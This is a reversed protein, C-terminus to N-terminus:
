PGEFYLPNTLALMAGDPARLEALAWRAGAPLPPSVLGREGTWTSAPQGDVVWRLVAGEPAGQWRLGLAQVEARAVTDGMLATRGGALSAELHVQPGTSLFVHGRSIGELLAAASLERAYIHSYAAGRAYQQPSHTDTGAVAPLRHGQGLWEYWIHLTNPSNTGLEYWPGNWVEIAQMPGPMQDTYLWACGTCLPDGLGALHAIVALGGAARVEQVADGMTRRRHGTRWDVWRDVGLAVAHGYYTTLELGPILALDRCAALDPDHLQSVTNHDTLALFDLGQRRAAELLEGVTQDGDSHATHTHLDGRYWGPERRLPPQPQWIHPTAGDAAPEGPGLRVEVRYSLPVGPLICFADLELTWRGPPLPGPQFGPTAAAPGLWVAKHEPSSHKAGRFGHPDFLTIALLNFTQQPAGPPRLPEYRLDIHLEGTGPPVDFPLLLYRKADGATLEAEFVHTPQRDSIPPM